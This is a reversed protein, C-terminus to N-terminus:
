PVLSFVTGQNSTGGFVTTGYLTGEPGMTVGAYPENGDSGDFNHLIVETWTGGQSSPPVLEFVVGCGAGCSDNRIAGGGATTGYLVGNPGLTVGAYPTVGDGNEGTFTHLITETWTGGPASPPTLSFVVGCGNHDCPQAGGLETTGYLVGNADVVVGAYPSIGDGNEGTFTHL